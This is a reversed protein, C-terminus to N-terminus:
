HIQSKITSYNIIQENIKDNLSIIQTKLSKVEDNLKENKFSLQSIEFQSLPKKSQPNSTTESTKTQSSNNSNKNSQSQITSKSNDLPNNQQEM